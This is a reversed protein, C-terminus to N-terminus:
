SSAREAGRDTVVDEAMVQLGGVIISSAGFSCQPKLGAVACRELVIEVFFDPQVNAYVSAM